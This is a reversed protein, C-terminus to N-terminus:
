KADPPTQTATAKSKTAKPKQAELKVALEAGAETLELGDGVVHAVVVFKNDIRATAKNAVIEAGVKEILKYVDM